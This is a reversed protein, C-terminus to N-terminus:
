IPLHHFFREVITSKLENQSHAPRIKRKKLEALFEKSTFESGLDSHLVKIHRGPVRNM